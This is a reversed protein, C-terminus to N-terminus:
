RLLRRELITIDTMAVAVKTGKRLFIWGQEEEEERKRARFM